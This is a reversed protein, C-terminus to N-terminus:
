LRRERLFSFIILFLVRGAGMRCVYGHPNNCDESEWAAPDYGPPKLRVCQKQADKGNTAWNLFTPQSFCNYCNDTFAINLQKNIM